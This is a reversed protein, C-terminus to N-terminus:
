EIPRVYSIIRQLNEYTQKAIEDPTLDLINAINKTTTIINEQENKTDYADSEILIREIPTNRVTKACADASYSFYVNYKDYIKNIIQQNGDFKHALIVPPLKGRMNKLIHLIKEWAGVCHIHVPREMEIAIKIQTTFVQMQLEMEPKYKDLGIEGVMVSPNQTLKERMRSEWGPTITDVFWPHIGICAFVTENDSNTIVKDWDSEQTADCIACAIESNPMCTLHCHADTHKM